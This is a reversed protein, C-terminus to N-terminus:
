EAPDLRLDARVVERSTFHSLRTTKTRYGDKQARVTYDM